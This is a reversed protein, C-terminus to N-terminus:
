HFLSVVIDDGETYLRKLGEENRKLQRKKKMENTELLDELDLITERSSSLHREMRKRSDDSIADPNIFVIRYPYTIPIDVGQYKVTIANKLFEKSLPHTAFSGFVSAKKAATYRGQYSHFPIYNNGFERLFEQPIKGNIKEVPYNQYQILENPIVIGYQELFTRPQLYIDSDSFVIQFPLYYSFKSIQQFDDGSKGNLQFSFHTDRSQLTIGFLDKYFDYFNSYQTQEITKIQSDIDFPTFYQENEIPQPPSKLIDKFAYAESFSSLTQLIEKKQTEDLLITEICAFAEDVTSDYAKNGYELVINYQKCKEADLSESFSIFLILLILKM